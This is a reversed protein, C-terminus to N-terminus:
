CFSVKGKTVEDNLYDLSRAYTKKNGASLRNYDLGTVFPFELLTEAGVFQGDEVLGGFCSGQVFLSICRAEFPGIVIGVVRFYM